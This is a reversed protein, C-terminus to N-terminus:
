NFNETVSITNAWNQVSVSFQVQSEGPVEEDPGPAGYDTIIINEITYISNRYLFGNTGCIDVPYYTTRGGLSCEVVLRTHRGSWSSAHSDTSTNNGFPYFYHDATLNSGSAITRNVSEYILGDAGSSEYQRMNLWTDSNYNVNYEFRSKAQVNILYISNVTFTKAALDPHSSFDVTIKKLLVKAQLRNVTVPCSGSGDVTFTRSGFMAMNSSSMATLSEEYSLIESRTSFSTENLGSNVAAYITYEGPILDCTIAQPQSPNSSTSKASEVVNNGSDVVYLCWENVATEQGASSAKSNEDGSLYFSVGTYEVKQPIPTKQCGCFVGFGFLVSVIAFDFKKM